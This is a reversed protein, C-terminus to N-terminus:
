SKATEIFLDQNPILERAQEITLSDNVQLIKTAENWKDVEDLM